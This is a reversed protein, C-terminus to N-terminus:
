KQILENEGEKGGERGGERERGREREREWKFCERVVCQRRRQRRDDTWTEPRVEDM